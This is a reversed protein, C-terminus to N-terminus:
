FMVGASKSAIAGVPLFGFHSLGELIGAACHGKALYRHSAPNQHHWELLESMANGVIIGHEARNDFLARDNGSDGCAVTRQPEFGFTERVFTMALGKDAQIPLLDLDKGGSYIVKVALGEDALTQKLRPLVSAAFESLFFSVKFPGQEADPQPTLDDFQSAIAWVQERNWDQSLIEAWATDPQAHGRRYIATGVGTVLADPEILQKEAQLQQYSILSRGTSYVITTGHQQRHQILQESLHAMAADDGVFTNDLDTIFLFKAM